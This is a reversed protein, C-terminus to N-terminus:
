VLNGMQKGKGTNAVEVGKKTHRRPETDKTLANKEHSTHTAKWVSLLPEYPKLDVNLPLYINSKDNDM